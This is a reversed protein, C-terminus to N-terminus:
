EEDEGGMKLVVKKDKRLLVVRSREIQIVKYSGIYDNKKLLTNNIIVVRDVEKNSYIIGNLNLDGAQRVLRVNLIGESNILPEFPDM